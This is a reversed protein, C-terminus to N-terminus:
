KLQQKSPLKVHHSGNCMKSTTV